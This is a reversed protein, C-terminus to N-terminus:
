ISVAVRTAVAIKYLIDTISAALQLSKTPAKPLVLLEDGSEVPGDSADIVRGDQKVLLINMRNANNSFGGARSIYDKVSNGKEWLFARPLRVEGSVLVSPNRRPIFITDDNELVIDAIGNESVVVLTGQPEVVSVKKVFATILEAEQVRIRSESDTSSPATFYEAELRKLSNEIASKQRSAISKRKIFIREYASLEPDVEILDLVQRLTARRNITIASAGTFSGDINVSINRDNVDSRFSIVDGDGILRGKFKEIPLYEFVGEGNRIQSVAVHTVGSAPSSLDMVDSGTITDSTFEFRNPKAADGGVVVTQMLPKVVIADGEKLVVDPIVGDRIFEYLDVVALVKSNRLIEIKRFSGSASDIGGAKDIFSLVSSTPMGAYKGPRHVYGTVYVSASQATILNTYVEVDNTYVRAIAAKVTGNVQSNKVGGLKVPGVDPIFINGQSDVVQIKEYATAGWIRVAVRDGVSVIYDANLGRTESASFGGGFLTHGFPKTQNRLQDLQETEQQEFLASRSDVVVGPTEVATQASVFTSLILATLLLTLKQMVPNVRDKCARANNVIAKFRLILTSGSRRGSCRLCRM